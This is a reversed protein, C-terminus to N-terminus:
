GSVISKLRDNIVQEAESMMSRVIETAPQIDHTLGVAEGALLSMQDFDGSFEPTPPFGMFKQLPMAQGFLNAEGVVPLEGIDERQYPPPNDNGEWEQVITNRVGRVSANPFDLGFIFHRATDHVNAELVKQKYVDHANAEESALFRTGVWVGDAGLALAAAVGRGDAIGGAAVVPVSVTDVINPLLSFTSASSRNHGGAEVGQVVLADVGAEVAAKAEDLSGVQMWVKVGNSQLHTMWEVPVDDWFFVVVPVNEEVCIDIHIRESFRAIIDLGFPKGTAKVAQIQSRFLDPPMAAAGLVGMGGANSVATALPATSIFAMGALVLPHELGYEETLRTRLM